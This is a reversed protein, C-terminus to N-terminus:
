WRLNKVSQNDIYIRYWIEFVVLAWFQRRYYPQSKNHNKIIKQIINPNFFGRKKINKESLIQLAVEGFEGKLWSNIPVTFGHKKRKLIEKPIIGAISKRYIYKDRLGQLKLNAPIRSASEVLNHDLFPVRAEVSNAMTMKDIKLLLDDPLWRKIDMLFIQNLYNKIDNKLYSTIDIDINYNQTKKYISHVYLGKKERKDFVSIVDLYSDVENELNSLHNFFRRLKLSNQFKSLISPMSCRLFKPILKGYRHTLYLLKYHPYGAFLEDSGEGTLVVTVYKKTLESMLYTPITAPDALPEDLHWIIKPLIRLADYKINLEHHDSGFHDAVIKAYKLENVDEEDFGVSFTKIPEESFKSMIAVIASSDLGGSLYAGLPIDSMLRRSVSEELLKLIEASYYQESKEEESFKIDWYKNISLKGNYILIHGPLLKKIDKFITRSGPIYRFTFFDNLAQYDIERKVEEYQLISKIESAFLLRGDILCYYLPKIGLRDRGLLIKNKNSDWIAFAFMGNIKKVFSDGLEEYLHVLVETDTKTYFIHGKKELDKKLDKYNYTEGNYVIWISHNENHIPQKGTELDIISLRYHGLCINKDIFFGSDDPGRHRIVKCMNKSLGKDEFGYIGCIGCM